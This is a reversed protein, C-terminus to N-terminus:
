NFMFHFLYRQRIQAPDTIVYKKSPTPEPEPSGSPSRLRFDPLKAGKLEHVFEGDRWSQYKIGNPNEVIRHNGDGASNNCDSPGCEKGLEVECLLLFAKQGSGALCDGTARKTTDTFSIGPTGKTCNDPRLGNRLIRYQDGYSKKFYVVIGQYESTDEKVPSMKTLDLLAYIHRLLPAILKGFRKLKEEILRFELLCDISKRSDSICVNGPPALKGAPWFLRLFCEILKTELSQADCNDNQPQSQVESIRRLLASATQVSHKTSTARMQLLPSLQRDLLSAEVRRLNDLNVFKKLADCVALPLDEHSQDAKNESQIFIAKKGNPPDTCQSWPLGTFLKFKADEAKYSAKDVMASLTSFKILINDNVQEASKDDSDIRSVPTLAALKLLSFVHRLLPPNLKDPTIPAGEIAKFDGLDEILRRTEGVSEIKDPLPADDRGFLEIFSQTLSTELSQFVGDDGQALYQAESIMDLM